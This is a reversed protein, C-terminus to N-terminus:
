SRTLVRLLHQIEADVEEPKEVLQAVEERFLQRYRVRLRHVAARLGGETLGLPPAMQAYTMDDRDGAIAGKLQAFLQSKGSAASEAELQDFVRDVVELAWHRDFAQDPSEVAASELKYREEAKSVDLSQIPQGGGRKQCGAREQLGAVYRRLCCLLFTRFRGKEPDAKKLTERELLQEFFGQVVDEAQDPPYGRLRVYVYLPYWYSRCLDELAQRARAPDPDHLALM